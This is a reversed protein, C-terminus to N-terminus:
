INFSQLYINNNIHNGISIVAFLNFPVCYLTQLKGHLKRKQSFFHMTKVLISYCGRCNAPYILSPRYMTDSAHCLIMGHFLIMGLGAALVFISCCKFSNFFFVKRTLIDGLYNCLWGESITSTIKFMSFSEHKYKWCAQKWKVWLFPIFKWGTFSKSTDM